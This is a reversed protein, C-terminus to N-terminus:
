NFENMAESIGDTLAIELASLIRIIVQDLIIKDKQSIKQLVYKETPLLQPGNPKIGLRFRAFEQSALRDIISQVGKHGAASANHSIRIEGLPLDIDDHIIWIDGTKIKYFNALLKVSQGSENMFTQPKALIIKEVENNDECLESKFKKGNKCALFRGAEKQSFQDLVMFGVNHWTQEYEKGPNGLGVILKM